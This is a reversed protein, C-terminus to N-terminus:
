RPSEELWPEFDVKGEIVEIQSEIETRNNTGWYNYELNIIYDPSNIIVFGNSHNKFTNYKFEFILINDIIFPNSNNEFLCRKFIKRNEVSEGAGLQENNTFTCNNIVAVKGGISVVKAYSIVSNTLNTYTLVNDFSLRYGFNADFSIILSNNLIFDNDVDMYYHRYGYPGETNISSNIIVTVNNFITLGLNHYSKTIFLNGTLLVIKNEITTKGSIRWDHEMIIWDETRNPLNHPKKYTVNDHDYFEFSDDPHRDKFNVDEKVMFGIVLHMTVISIIISFVILINKKREREM